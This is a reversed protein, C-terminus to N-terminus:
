ADIVMITHEIPNIRYLQPKHYRWLSPSRVVALCAFQPQPGPPVDPQDLVILDTFPIRRRPQAVHRVYRHPAVYLRGVRPNGTSLLCSRM